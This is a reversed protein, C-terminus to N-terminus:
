GARSGWNSCSNDFEGRPGRLSFLSVWLFAEHEPLSRLGQHLAREGLVRGHSRM